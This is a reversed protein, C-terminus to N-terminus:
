KNDTILMMLRQLFKPALWPYFLRSTYMYSGGFIYIIKAFPIKMLWQYTKTNPNSYKKYRTWITEAATITTHAVLPLENACFYFPLAGFIAAIDQNLRTAKQLWQNLMCNLINTLTPYGSIFLLVNPKIHKFTHFLGALPNELILGVNSFLSKLIELLIGLIFYTKFVQFFFIFHVVIETMIQTKILFSIALSLINM